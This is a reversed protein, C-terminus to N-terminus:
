LGCFYYWFINFLLEEMSHFKIILIKQWMKSNFLLNKVMSKIVIKKHFFCLSSKTCHFQIILKKEKNQFFLFNQKLIKHKMRPNETMFFGLTDSATAVCFFQM